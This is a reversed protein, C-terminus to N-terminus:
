LNSDNDNQQEFKWSQVLSFDKLSTEKDKQYIGIIRIKQWEPQIKGTEFKNQKTFLFHTYNNRSKKTSLAPFAVPIM